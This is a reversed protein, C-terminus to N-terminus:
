EKSPRGAKALPAPTAKADATIARQMGRQDRIIQWVRAAAGFTIAWSLTGTTAGDSWPYISISATYAGAALFLGACGVAEVWMAGCPIDAHPAALAGTLALLAADTYALGWLATFEPGIQSVLAEHRAIDLVHQLGLAVLMGYTVVVFAHSSSTLTFPRRPSKPM